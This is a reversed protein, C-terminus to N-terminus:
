LARSDMRHSLFTLQKITQDFRATHLMQLNESALHRLMNGSRPDQIQTAKRRRDDRMTSILQPASPRYSRMISTPLFQYHYMDPLQVLYHFSSGATVPVIVKIQQLSHHFAHTHVEDSRLAIPWTLAMTQEIPHKCRLWGSVFWDSIQCILHIHM